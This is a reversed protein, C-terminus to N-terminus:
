FFFSFVLINSYWYYSRESSQLGFAFRLKVGVSMLNVKDVYPTFASLKNPEYNTTAYQQSTLISGYTFPTDGGTAPTSGLSVLGKEEAAPAVNLLGYNFFIGAFLNKTGDDGLPIKLGFEIAASVDLGFSLDGSPMTPNSYQGFNHNPLDEPKFNTYPFVGSTTLTKAAASYSSALSFGVKVGAAVFFNKYWDAGLVPVQFSYQGMIPIHLYMAWQDESYTDLNGLIYYVEDGGEAITKGSAGEYLERSISVLKSFQTSGSFYNGEVGTLLAWEGTFNYTYGAGVGFGFSGGSTTSGTPSYNLSSYGLSAYGSIEHDAGKEIAGYEGGWGGGGGWSSGGWDGGWQAFGM